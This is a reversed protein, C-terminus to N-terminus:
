RRSVKLIETRRSPRHDRPASGVVVEPELMRTDVQSRRLHVRSVDTQYAQMGQLNVVDPDLKDM